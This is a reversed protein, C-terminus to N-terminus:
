PALVPPYQELDYCFKGYWGVRPNLSYISPTSSVHLLIGKDVLLAFTRMMHRPSVNFFPALSRASIAVTNNPNLESLAYLLVRFALPTLMEDSALGKLTRKFYQGYHFVNKHKALVGAQKATLPKVNHSVLEGTAKDIIQEIKEFDAM